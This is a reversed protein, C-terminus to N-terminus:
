LKQEGIINMIDGDPKGVRVKSDHSTWILAYGLKSNSYAIGNLGYMLNCNSLNISKKIQLRYDDPRLNRTGDKVTYTSLSNTVQCDLSINEGDEAKYSLEFPTESLISYMDADLTRFLSINSAM